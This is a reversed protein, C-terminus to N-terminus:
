PQSVDGLPYPHIGDSCPSPPRHSNELEKMKEVYKRRDVVVDLREHGNVYGKKWRSYHFGLENM